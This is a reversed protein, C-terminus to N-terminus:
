VHLSKTFGKSPTGGEFAKVPLPDILTLTWASRRCIGLKAAEQSCKEVSLAALNSARVEVGIQLM